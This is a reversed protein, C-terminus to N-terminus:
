PARDQGPPLPRSLIWAAVLALVVVQVGIIWPAVGLLVSLALVLGMSAVAAGKARQGIAGHAQWNRILPGFVRHNVLWRHLRDSSRAFAFAAVLVFPTTPVLPLVAGLVGAGLALFGLLLWGLRVISFGRKGDM